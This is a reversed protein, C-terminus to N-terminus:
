VQVYPDKGDVWQDDVTIYPSSKSCLAICGTLDGSEWKEKWVAQWTTDDIIEKIPRLVANNNDFGGLTNTILDLVQEQIKAGFNVVSENHHVNYKKLLAEDYNTYIFAALLCCPLLTYCADIYVEYQDLAYCNIDLKNPWSQYSELDSKGVFKVPHDSPQELYYDVNGQRDLVPFSPQEFRRTNKVTFRKFGYEKALREAELVQHENHKFRIFMWDASGGASIFARANTIIKNWNTGIRYLHQTDALGDLAFVVYHNSPLSNALDEWWQTTRASGNTHVSVRIDPTNDKLYQCMRIFENNLIPDGFTGCFTIDEIQMLVEQNFIKVFDDYSWDNIKLSPNDVGGHITRPCMPCSAQCRNTIEVHIKKLQNFKFM